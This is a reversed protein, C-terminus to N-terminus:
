YRTHGRNGPLKCQGAPIAHLNAEYRVLPHLPQRQLIAADLRVVPHLREVIILPALTGDVQQLILVGQKLCNVERVFDLVCHGLPLVPEEAYM